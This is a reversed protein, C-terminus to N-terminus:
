LAKRQRKRPADANIGNLARDVDARVAPSRFGCAGADALRDRMLDPHSCAFARGASLLQPLQLRLAADMAAEFNDPDLRSAVASALMSAVHLVQWRHALDLASLMVPVQPEEEGAGTTGTYILVLLLGVAQISSDKIEIVRRDGERMSTTSLMAKLVPSAGCLVVSHAKVEANGSGEARLVVDTSATDNLVAEWTEVVGESVAIKNTPPGSKSLIDVAEDIAELECMWDRVDLETIVRKAALLCQLASKGTFSIFKTKQLQGHKEFHWFLECDCSPPAPIDPDAGSEMAMRLLSLRSRRRQSDSSILSGFRVHDVSDSADNGTANSIKGFLIAHLPSGFDQHMDRWQFSSTDAGQLARAEGMALAEWIWHQAM